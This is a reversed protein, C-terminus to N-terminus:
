LYDEEKVKEQLITKLKLRARRLRTKVTNTCIGLVEAIERDKLEYEYKLLIIERYESPELIRINKQLLEKLLKEEVINEVPFNEVGNSVREDINVNDLPLYNRRKRLIDISTRTAISGLWAGVKDGDKVTNIKRFAKVFTEQVVDQALHEDKVIYLATRFIRDYFMEFLTKEYNDKQTIITSKKM